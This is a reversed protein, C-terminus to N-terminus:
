EVRKLAKLVERKGGIPGACKSVEFGLAALRRRVEGKVSYTSLIAGPKLSTYLKALFAESWLEPNADPSFADQYCADFHNKSLDQTTADGIILELIVTKFVFRYVGPALTESLNNRFELYAKILEPHQLSSNYGLMALVDAALLTKELSTFSLEAQNSLAVDASLFFNLGTGFGVELVRIAQKNALMKTVGTLGIFVHKSETVAGKDSHFTQDYRESFLTQSGDATLRLISQTKLDTV